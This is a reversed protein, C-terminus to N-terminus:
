NNIVQGQPAVIEWANGECGDRAEKAGIGCGLFLLLMQTFLLWLNLFIHM